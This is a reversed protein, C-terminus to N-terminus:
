ICQREGGISARNLELILRCKEKIRGQREGERTKTAVVATARAHLARRSALLASTLAFSLRPVVANFLAADLPECMWDPRHSTAGLAL